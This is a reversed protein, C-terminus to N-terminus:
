KPMRNQKSGFCQRPINMSLYFVRIQPLFALRSVSKSLSPLQHTVHSISHRILPFIEQIHVAWFTSIKSPHEVRNCRSEIYIKSDHEIVSQQQISFIKSKNAAISCTSSCDLLEQLSPTSFYNIKLSSSSKFAPHGSKM